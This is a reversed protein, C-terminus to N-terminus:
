NDIMYRLGARVEHERLNAGLVTGLDLFRYGIDIKAHDFIPFAFGAMLAYALNYYTHSSTRDYNIAYTQGSAPNTVSINYSSGDAQTYASSTQYHGFSLGVGAGVYPTVGYWTGLDYYGNVLADYSQLNAQYAGTCTGSTPTATSTTSVVGTVPNTTTATQVPGYGNICRFSAGYANSHVPMHYDIVVDARLHSTFAYGGGVGGVYGLEHSQRLTVGPANSSFTSGNNQLIGKYFPNAQYLQAGGFDGRVYWGSGFVVNAVPMSSIDQVPDELAPDLDAAKVPGTGLMALAVAAGFSFKRLMM